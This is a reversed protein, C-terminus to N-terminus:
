EGTILVTAGNFEDKISYHQPQGMGFLGAQPDM